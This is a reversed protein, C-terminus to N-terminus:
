KTEGLFIEGVIFDLAFVAVGKAWIGVVCFGKVDGETLGWAFFGETAACGSGAEAGDLDVHSM